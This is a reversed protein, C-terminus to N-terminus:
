VLCSALSLRLSCFIRLIKTLCRVRLSLLFLSPDFRFFDTSFVAECLTTSWSSGGLRDRLACGVCPLCLTLLFGGSCPPSDLGFCISMMILLPCIVLGRLTSRWAMILLAIDALLAVFCSSLILRLFTDFELRGADSENEFGSPELFDRLYSMCIQPIPNM